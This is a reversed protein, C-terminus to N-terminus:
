SGPPAVGRWNAVSPELRGAPGQGFLRFVNGTMARVSSQPCSSVPVSSPCPRLAGVWVNDGSDFIGAAGTPDTYYTFPVVIGASDSTLFPLPELTSSRARGIPRQQPFRCPTPASFTM